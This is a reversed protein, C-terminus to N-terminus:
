LEDIRRMVREVMAQCYGLNFEFIEAPTYMKEIEQRLMSKVRNLRVKVNSESIQLLEATEATNFGNVERLAFLIRYDFPIRELAKELIYGLEKNQMLKDTDNSASTFMPKSNDKMEQVIENQFAAKNKKRYCNNMMIRTLWTRFESRGEFKSLNKYADIFTEQMLDQVDEHGYNYARGTKYLYPNYRRVIMEYLAKEGAIIRRIIESDTFTDTAIM